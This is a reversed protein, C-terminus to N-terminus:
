NANENNCTLNSEESEENSIYDFVERNLSLTNESRINFVYSNLNGKDTHGCEICGHSITTTLDIINGDVTYNGYYSVPCKDDDVIFYFTGNSNLYLTKNNFVYKGSNFTYIVDDSPTLFDDSPTVIPNVDEKDDTEEDKVEEKELFQEKISGDENRFIKWLVVGLIISFVLVILVVPLNIPLKKKEVKEKNESVNDKNLDNEEVKNEVTSSQVSVESVVPTSESVSTQNTVVVESIAKPEIVPVEKETDIEVNNEQVPATEIKKVEEVMKTLDGTIDIKTNNLPNELISTEVENVKKDEEM